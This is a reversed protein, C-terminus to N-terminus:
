ALLTSPDLVPFTIITSYRYIISIFTNRLFKTTQQARVEITFNIIVGANWWIVRTLNYHFYYLLGPKVSVPNM